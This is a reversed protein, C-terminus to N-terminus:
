LSRSSRILEELSFDLFHACSVKGVGEAPGISLARAEPFRSLFTKLGGHRAGWGLRIAVALIEKGDSLVFDVEKERDKWHSLELGTGRTIAFLRAGVANVVLRRWTERDAAIEQPSRGLTATAFANDLAILRPISSKDLEKRSFRPLLRILHAGELLALHSAVTKAHPKASCAQTLRNVSVIEGAHSLALYLVERILAPKSTQALSLVDRGMVTELHSAVCNRWAAADRRDGGLRSLAEPLGGFYLFEELGLGYRDRVSGFGLPAFYNCDAALDRSPAASSSIVLVQIPARNERDRRLEEQLINEWGFIRPAEDLVLLVPKDAAAINRSERFCSKLWAGDPAILRDADRHLVAGKWEKFVERAKETKGLGRAGIWFQLDRSM